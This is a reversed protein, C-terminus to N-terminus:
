IRNELLITPRSKARQLSITSFWQQLLLFFTLQWLMTSELLLSWIPNTTSYRDSLFQAINRPYISDM